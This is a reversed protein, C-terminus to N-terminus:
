TSRLWVVGGVAGPLAGEVGRGQPVGAVGGGWAVVRDAAELGMAKAAGGKAQLGHGAILEGRNLGAARVRMLIQGPGPEPRPMDRLELATQGGTTQMWYSQM